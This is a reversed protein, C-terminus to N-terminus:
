LKRTHEAKASVALCANLIASGTLVGVPFTLCRTAIIGQWCKTNEKDLNLICLIIEYVM